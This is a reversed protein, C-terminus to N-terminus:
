NNLLPYGRVTVTSIKDVPSNELSADVGQIKNIGTVLVDFKKVEGNKLVFEIQKEKSNIKINSIEEPKISNVNENNLPKVQALHSIAHFNVSDAKITVNKTSDLLRINISIPKGPITKKATLFLKKPQSAENNGDENQQHNNFTHVKGVRIRDSNELNDTFENILLRYNTKEEENINIRDLLDHINKKLNQTKSASTKFFVKGELRTPNYDISDVKKFIFSSNKFDLDGINNIAPALKIFDIRSPRKVKLEEVEKNIELLGIPSNLAVVIPPNNKNLGKSVPVDASKPAIFTIEALNVSLEKAKEKITPHTWAVSLLGGLALTLAALQQKVNLYNTKMNTIRKIRQYLHYNSGTAALSFTPNSEEQQLLELKLLAHAYSLPKGSFKVVLDDCAHEREIQIFRSTLWVFPNFFLVTEVCTKIINLLYDNRRIHSLEHILIAEVQEEELHNVLAIPFLVIPKLYGIVIPVTILGSLHFQIKKNLKLSKKIENFQNLWNQPVASLENKKIKELFFYSKVVIFLQFIIGLIYIPVIIPFYSEAKETFTEPLNQAFSGLEYMSLDVGSKVSKNVETLRSIFTYVFWSFMLILSAYSLNHRYVAKFKPFSVMFILLLVYIIGSQWISNLISWGFAQIIDQFLTNM